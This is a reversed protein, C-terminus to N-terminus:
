TDLRATSARVLHYEASLPGGPPAYPVSPIPAGVGTVGFATLSALRAIDPPNNTRDATFFNVTLATVYAAAQYRFGGTVYILM